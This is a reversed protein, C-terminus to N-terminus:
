VGARVFLQGEGGFDFAVQMGTVEVERPSRVGRIALRKPLTKLRRGVPM